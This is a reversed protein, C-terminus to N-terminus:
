PRSDREERIHKLHERMQKESYGKGSIPRHRAAELRRGLEDAEELLSQVQPSRLRRPRVLVAIPRGHRTITIEEGAAVEDLLAPLRARAESVSVEHGM